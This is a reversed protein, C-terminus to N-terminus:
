AAPKRAEYALSEVFRKADIYDMPPIDRVYKKLETLMASTTTRIAYYDNASIAGASARRAYVSDLEQRYSEFPSSQLAPPWTIGGHITDLESPSLEKPKGAQAYRVLSEMTPAPGREAARYNRNADRMQFYTNTWQDRNDIERSQAETMNIAAQSNALNKMGQSRAVDAMGRAYSEGATAAPAQFNYGGPPSYDQAAVLQTALLITLITIPILRM